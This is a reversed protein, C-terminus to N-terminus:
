VSVCVCVFYVSVMCVHVQHIVQQFYAVHLITDVSLLQLFSLIAISGALLVSSPIYEMRAYLQFWAYM